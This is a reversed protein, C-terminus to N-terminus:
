GLAPLRRDLAIVDVVGVIAQQGATWAKTQRGLGNPVLCEEDGTEQGVLHAPRGDHNILRIPEPQIETVPAAECARMDDAVSFINM